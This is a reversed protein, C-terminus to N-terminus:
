GLPRSDGISRPSTACVTGFRLQLTRKPELPWPNWCTEVVRFFEPSKRSLSLHSFPPHNQIIKPGSKKIPVESMSRDSTSTWHCHLSFKVQSWSQLDKDQKWEDDLGTLFAIEAPLYVQLFDRCCRWPSPNAVPFIMWTNKYFMMWFLDLCSWSCLARKM